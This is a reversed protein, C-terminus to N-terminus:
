RKTATLRLAAVRLTAKGELHALRRMAEHYPLWAYTRIETRQIKVEENGIEALFYEIQRSILEGTGQVQYSFRECIPQDSLIQIGTLGVEERCERIAADLAIEGVEPRGKPFGWNGNLHQILLFVTGTSHRKTPIIGFSCDKGDM